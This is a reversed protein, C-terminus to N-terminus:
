SHPGAAMSALLIRPHMMLPIVWCSFPLELGMSYPWTPSGISHKGSAVLLVVGHLIRPRAPEEEVTNRHVCVCVRRDAPRRANPLASVRFLLTGYLMRAGSGFKWTETVLMTSPWSNMLRVETGSVPHEPALM